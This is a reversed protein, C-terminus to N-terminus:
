RCFNRYGSRILALNLADRFFYSSRSRLQRVEDFIHIRSRVEDLPMKNLIRRTEVVFQHTADYAEAERLRSELGRLNEQHIRPSTLHIDTIRPRLNGNTHHNSPPRFFSRLWNWGGTERRDAERDTLRRSSRPQSNPNGTFLRSVGDRPSEPVREIATTRNRDIPRSSRSSKQAEVFEASILVSVSVIAVYRIKSM